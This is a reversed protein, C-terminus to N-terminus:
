GSKVVVALAVSAILYSIAAFYLHSFIRLPVTYASIWSFSFKCIFTM